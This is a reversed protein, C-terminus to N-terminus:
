AQGSLVRTLPLGRWEQLVLDANAIWRTRLIAAEIEPRCLTLVGQAQARKLVDAGIDERTRTTVMVPTVREPQLRSSPTCLAKRLKVVRTLLKGFKEDDPVGTTCEVIVVDGCPTLGYMDAEDRMNSLASVYATSFGLMHLLLAVGAEFDKLEQAKPDTLLQTLRVLKADAVEVMMRARNPVSHVDALEAEQQVCGGYIPACCIIAEEPIEFRVVGAMTRDPGVSWHIPKANPTDEIRVGGPDANWVALRFACPDLHAALQVVVEVATGRVRSRSLDIWAVREAFVELLVNDSSSL